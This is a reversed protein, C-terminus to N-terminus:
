LSYTGSGWHVDWRQWRSCRHFHDHRRQDVRNITLSPVHSLLVRLKLGDLLRPYCSGRRTSVPSSSGRKRERPSPIVRRRACPGRSWTIM